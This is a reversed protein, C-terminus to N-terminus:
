QWQYPKLAKVDSTTQANIFRQADAGYIEILSYQAAPYYGSVFKAGQDPSAEVKNPRALKLKNM